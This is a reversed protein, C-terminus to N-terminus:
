TKFFHNMEELLEQIDLNQDLCRFFIHNVSYDIARGNRIKVLHPFRSYNKFNYFLTPMYRDEREIRRGNLFVPEISEPLSPLIESTIVDYGKHRNNYCFYNKGENQSLYVRYNRRRIRKSNWVLSSMLVLFAISVIGAIM